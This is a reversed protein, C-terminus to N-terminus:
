TLQFLNILRDMQWTLLRKGHRVPYWESHNNEVIKKKRLPIM